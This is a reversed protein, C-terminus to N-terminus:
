KRRQSKQVKNKASSKEKNPFLIKRFNKVINRALEAAGVGTALKGNITGTIDCSQWTQQGKCAPSITLNWGPGPASLQWGSPLDTLTFNNVSERKGDAHNIELLSMVIADTNADWIRFMIAEENNDLQLAWWDYTYQINGMFSMGLWQRDIWQIGSVKKTVGNITLDGTVKLRTQSYYGSDGKPLKIYGTGNIALPPKVMELETNVSLDVHSDRWAVHFDYQFPKNKGKWTFYDGNASKVDAYGRAFVKLRKMDRHHYTKGKNIDVFTSIMHPFKGHLLQELPAYTIFASFLFYRSGDESTLHAYHAYWEILTMPWESQLHRGEDQPFRLKGTFYPYSLSKRIVPPRDEPKNTATVDACARHGGTGALILGLVM